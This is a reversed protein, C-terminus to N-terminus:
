GAIPLAHTELKTLDFRASAHEIEFGIPCGDEAYDVVFNQAIEDTNASTEDSLSIYLTDTDSFYEIKM